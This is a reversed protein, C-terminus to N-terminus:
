ILFFLEGVCNGDEYRYGENCLCRDGVRDPYCLNQTSCPLNACADSFVHLYLFIYLIEDVSAYILVSLLSYFVSMVGFSGEVVVLM